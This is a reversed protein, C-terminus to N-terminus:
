KKKNAPNNHAAGGAAPAASPPDSAVPTDNAPRDATRNTDRPALNVNSASYVRLQQTKNDYRMGVGDMTSQGKVVHAPQDTYVVDDNPMIVFKQSYADMADNKADPQRHVHADGIMTIRNNHDDLVATKSTGVTIPNGAQQGIARPNVVHYSDDDPFHQGYDGELRDIPKGTADTRLMVFNKSWSDMEHTMRRPPDTQVARQAYNAAWWTSLVLAVLLILAMLAPFREKM